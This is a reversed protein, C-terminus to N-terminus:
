VRERGSARGIEATKRGTKALLDALRLAIRQNQPEINALQQFVKVAKDLNGKSLHKQAQQLLKAKNAM